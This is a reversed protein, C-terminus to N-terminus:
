QSYVISMICNVSGSITCKKEKRKAERKKAKFGAQKIPWSFGGFLDAM